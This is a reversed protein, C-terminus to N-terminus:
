NHYNREHLDFNTIKETELVIQSNAIINRGVPKNQVENYM